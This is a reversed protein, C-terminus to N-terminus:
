CHVKERNVRLNHGKEIYLVTFLILDYGEAQYYAMEGCM